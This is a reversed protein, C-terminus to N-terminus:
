IVGLYPEVQQSVGKLSQQIHKEDIIIDHNYPHIAWHQKGSATPNVFYISLTRKFNIYEKWHAVLFTINKQTNFTYVSAKPFDNLIKLQDIGRLSSLVLHGHRTGDKLAVIIIEKAQKISQANQAMVNKSKIHQM